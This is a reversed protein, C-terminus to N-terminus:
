RTMGEDSDRLEMLKLFKWELQQITNYLLCLILLSISLLQDERSFSQYTCVILMSLTGIGWWAFSLACSRVREPVTGCGWQLHNLNWAALVVVLGFAIRSLLDASM